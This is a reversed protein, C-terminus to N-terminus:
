LPSASRQSSERISFEPKLIIYQLPLSPDALRLQLFKWAAACMAAVPQVLTTLPRNSADVPVNSWIERVDAAGVESIILEHKAHEALRGPERAVHTYHTSIQDPIWLAIIGTRKMRLARAHPNPRYGMELAAALIRERSKSSVQPYDGLAFTM